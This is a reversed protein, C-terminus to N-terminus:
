SVADAGIETLAPAYRMNLSGEEVLSMLDGAWPQQMMKDSAAKAKEESEWHVIELFEGNTDKLLTRYYFGPQQKLFENMTPALRLLTEAGQESTVNFSVLEITSNM